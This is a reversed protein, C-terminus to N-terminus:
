RRRRIKKKQGSKKGYGVDYKVSKVHPDHVYYFGSYKTPSQLRYRYTHPKIDVKKPRYGQKRVWQTARPLSKFKGTRSVVVSQIQKPNPRFTLSKGGGKKATYIIAAPRISCRRMRMRKGRNGFGFKIAHDAGKVALRGLKYKNLYGRVSDRIGLTKLANDIFTVPKLQKIKAVTSVKETEPKPKRSIQTPRWSYIPPAPPAEPIPEFRVGQDFNPGDELFSFDGYSQTSTIPVAQRPPEPTPATIDRYLGYADKATNYANATSNYASSAANAAANYGPIWDTLAGGRIRQTFVRQHKRVM